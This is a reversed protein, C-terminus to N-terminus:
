QGFAFYCYDTYFFFRDGFARCGRHNEGGAMDLRIEAVELGQGCLQALRTYKIPRWFSAAVRAKTLSLGGLKIM